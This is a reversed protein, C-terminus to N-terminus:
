GQHQREEGPGGGVLSDPLQEGAKAVCQFGATGVGIDGACEVVGFQVLLQIVCHDFLELGLARTRLCEFFEVALASKRRIQGRGGLGQVQEIRWGRWGRLLLRRGDFLRAGDCQFVGFAQGVEQASFHHLAVHIRFAVLGPLLFVQEFNVDAIGIFALAVSKQFDVSAGGGLRQGLHASEVGTAFKAGQQLPDEGRFRGGLEM